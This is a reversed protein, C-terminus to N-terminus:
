EARQQQLANALLRRVVEGRHLYGGDRRLVDIGAMMEPSVRVSLKESEVRASSKDSMQM